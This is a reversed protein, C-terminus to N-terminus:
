LRVKVVGAFQDPLFTKMTKSPTMVSVRTLTLPWDAPGM